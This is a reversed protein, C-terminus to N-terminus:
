NKDNQNSIKSKVIVLDVNLDAKLRRILATYSDARRRKHPIIGLLEQLTMEIRQGAQLGGFHRALTNIEEDVSTTTKMEQPTCLTPTTPTEAQKPFASSVVPGKSEGDFTERCFCDWLEQILM